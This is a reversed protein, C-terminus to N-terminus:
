CFYSFIVNDIFIPNSSPLTMCFMSCHNHIVGFMILSRLAEIFRLDRVDKKAPASLIKWNRKISFITLVRQSKLKLNAKYHEVSSLSQNRLHRDYFTSLIVLAFLVIFIIGTLKEFTDLAHLIFKVRKNTERASSPNRVLEVNIM